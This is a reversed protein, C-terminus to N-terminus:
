RGVLVEAPKSLDFRELRRVAEQLDTENVVNYREFVSRTKHGTLQMAVREPVSARVLARVASRRLDHPIRGPCGALRCADKWAKAFTTIPRPAKPGGRGKAVLRVFVRTVLHGAKRLAKHETQRRELIARLEGTMPFTRPADNKTMGPDLMVVGARFDVHRWELALVESPVRWGTIFAFMVVDALVEPLHRCVAEVQDRDFFGARPASEKLMVIQPRTFIRNAAIALSYCRKLIQLERNIQANSTLRGPAATPTKRKPPPAIPESKRLAVYARVDATTIDSLRRHGFFPALHLRIRREVVAVSRRGNTRLDNVVDKAAETFTLRADSAAVPIGKAIDGERLRLLREADGKRTFKTSEQEARGNRFYRITWTACTQRNGAKDRYSRRFVQGM